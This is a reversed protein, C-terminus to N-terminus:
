TRCLLSTEPWSVRAWATSRTRIRRLFPLLAPNSISWRTRCTAPISPVPFRVQQRSNSVCDAGARLTVGFQLELLYIGDTSITFANSNSNTIGLAPGSNSFSVEGANPVVEVTANYVYIFSSAVEPGTAGTAGFAGTAGTVGTAGIAGTAGTAGTAGDGGDSRDPRNVGDGTAGTAGTLGPRERRVLPGARRDLRAQQVQRVQRVQRAPPPKQRAQATSSLAFCILALFSLPIFLFRRVLYSRRTSQRASLNAATGPLISQHMAM